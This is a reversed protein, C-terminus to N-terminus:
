TSGNLFMREFFTNNTLIDVFKIKGFFLKNKLLIIALYIFKYFKIKVLKNLGVRLKVRIGIM